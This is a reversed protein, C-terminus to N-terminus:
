KGVKLDVKQVDTSNRGVMIEFPADEVGYQMDANWYALKAADITFAVTKKQGPELSIRMFDKLEKVPRTASSVKQHIYLQVIEDGKMKGTNTVDVEVTGYVDTPETSTLSGKKTAQPLILRPKSYEFSTYSLGYGFPFLPKRDETVYNFFQASPKHNYYVPIQGVSKPYTITLKGSPSVDGFLINAFANGAEEGMFWGDVIAPVHQAIWPIALPRGHMLYVIVPKGTAVMAKVLDDQQSQLQLDVMDGFHNPAWAERVLQENEGVAVVIVDAQQATKVAEDILRANEEKSPFIITDIYQYNNQSITDGNATIACGKAYLVDIKNGTGQTKNNIEQVKNRIGELLSVNKVPLGSYDGLYNTAAMPGIVAIKKYQDKKIPLMNETQAGFPANKLLVMSEEAIKLALGRGETNHANQTAKELDIPGQEFLGLKFKLELIRAVASDLSAMSIKKENVLEVLHRYNKGFPLDSTVGANFAKLAASKEDPAVFHKNWLQDIGFWDSVVVGGYNWEKRLVDKLLWRNAHSPIGDMENYSAMIAAPKANNICLRFSEMHAERIVRLSYNSPGQNNGGESQGHGAFHKLTAAVHGPAITGDNSGQFGKVIASGLTGCLYPDEGLTEGTRGWRPDRCVDVVPALVLSTGRISAQKAAHTYIKELLNKDWSCSLGIGHPFVDVDRAVLGHHAEDIYIIPIGLRTKTRFYDQLKNRAYITQEMTEDFAPNMMGMGNKFLSDMRAPNNFLQDNLRPASAYMSRLQAVKEELTMKSLLDKVRKAVPQKPDKYVPQQAYTNVFLFICCVMVLSTCKM